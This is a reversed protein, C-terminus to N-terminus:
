ALSCRGRRPAKGLKGFIFRSPLGNWCSPVHPFTVRKFTVVLKVVTPSTGTREDLVEKKLSEVQQIPFKSVPTAYLVVGYNPTQLNERRVATCELQVSSRKFLLLRLFIKRRKFDSCTLGLYSSCRCILKYVLRKEILVRKINLWPLRFM